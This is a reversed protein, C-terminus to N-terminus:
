CKVSIKGVDINIYLLIVLLVIFLFVGSRFDCFAFLPFFLIAVKPRGAIFNIPPPPPPLSFWNSTSLGEGKTRCQNVMCFMYLCCFCFSYIASLFCLSCSTNFPLHGCHEFTQDFDSRFRLKSLLKLSPICTSILFQM